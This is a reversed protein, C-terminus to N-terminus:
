RTPLWKATEKRPPHHHGSPAPERMVEGPDRASGGLALSANLITKRM